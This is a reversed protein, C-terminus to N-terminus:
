LNFGDVKRDFVWTSVDGGLSNGLSDQAVIRLYWTGDCSGSEIADKSFSLTTAGDYSFASAPMSAAITETPPNTKSMLITYTLPDSGSDGCAWTISTPNVGGASSPSSIVPAPQFRYTYVTSYASSLSGLSGMVRFYYTKWSSLGSFSAITATIVATSLITGAAFGSDSSLQWLYQIGAAPQSVNVGYVPLWSVLFNGSQDSTVANISPASPCISQALTFSMVASAASAAGNDQVVQYYWVGPMLSISPSTVSSSFSSKYTDPYLVPNSKSSIYLWYKQNQTQGSVSGWSGGQWVIPVSTLSSCLISSGNTPSVPTPASPAVVTVVSNFVITSVASSMTNGLSDKAVVKFYWTGNCSGTTISSSSITIKKAGDYTYASSPFTVSTPPNTQSLYWTYTLADSGSDGCMWSITTPNTAPSCLPSDLVPVSGATRATLSSSWSGTGFSNTACVRFYYTRWPVLGSRVSSLASIGTAASNWTVGDVSYEVAYTQAGAAASWSVTISNSTATYSLGSPAAPIAGATVTYSQVTKDVAKVTYIVSGTFDAAAGSAPSISAGTHSVAPILSTLATGAPLSVKVTHASESVVGSVAPAAFSFSTIAKAPNLATAVFVTYSRSTGDAAYVTYVVATRFDNCSTMSIQATEEVAVTSGSVVFRPVLESIDTLFPMTVTITSLKQDIVGINNGISFWVIRKEDNKSVTVTVAYEKVSGDAAAVAYTVPSTFDNATVTSVQAEKGVKVSVGTSTFAAVLNTVDTKYPVMVSITGGTEDIVGSCGNISFATLAKATDAATHVTVVYDRVTGDAATVTYTVPSLFDNATYGCEQVTKGVRVSEGTTVFAAVLATLDTGYPLLLSIGSTAQNIEGDIGALSFRTIAKASNKAVVVTVSYSYESGDAAKVTYIVPNSFDNATKGSEQQVKGVFVAAGTSSFDAVLSTIDSDYPVSVVVSPASISGVCDSSFSNDSARFSFSLLSKASDAAVTVRVAYDQRSGDKAVVTYTIGSSFDNETSGSKQEKEGVLTREGTTTFEAVLKTVDTGYPVTLSVSKATEDVVGTAHPDVISFAVLMKSEDNAATNSHHSSRGCGILGVLFGIILFWLVRNM